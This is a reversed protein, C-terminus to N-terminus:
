KASRYPIQPNERSGAAVIASSAGVVTALIRSM